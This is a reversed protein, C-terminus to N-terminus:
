NLSIVFLICRIMSLCISGNFFQGIPCNWQGDICWLFRNISYQAYCIQGYLMYLISKQEIYAIRSTSLSLSQVATGEYIWISFLRCRLSSSDYSVVYCKINILCAMICRTMSRVNTQNSIIDNSSISTFDTGFSSVEFLGTILQENTNLILPLLLLTHFLFMNVEM